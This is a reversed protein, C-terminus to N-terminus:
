IALVVFRSAIMRSPRSNIIRAIKISAPTATKKTRYLNTIWGLSWCAATWGVAVGGGTSISITEWDTELPVVNSAFINADIGQCCLETAGPIILADSSSFVIPLTTLNSMWAVVGNNVLM